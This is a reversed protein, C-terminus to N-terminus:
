NKEYNSGKINLLQCLCAALLYVLIDLTDATGSFLGFFQGIEWILGCLFATFCCIETCKWNGSFVVCLGCSLSFGWLFDPAYCGLVLNGVPHALNQVRINPLIFFFLKSIYTEPRYFVYLILGIILSFLMLVANKIRKSM